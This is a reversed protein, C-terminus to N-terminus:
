RTNAFEKRITEAVDMVFNSGLVDIFKKNENAENEIDYYSVPEWFAGEVDPINISVNVFGVINANVTNARNRFVGISTQGILNKAIINTTNVIMCEAVGVDIGLSNIIMLDGNSFLGTNATISYNVIKNTNVTTDDQRRNYNLIKTGNGWNPQFYKKFTGDLRNFSDVSIVQDDSPWNTRWFAITQIATAIDGYKEIIYNDFDPQYLYWGYYPDTIKAVVWILWDLTPDQYYAGALQDARLSNGLEYEYYDIPALRPTTVMTVRETINRVQFNNYEILPLKSFYYETM